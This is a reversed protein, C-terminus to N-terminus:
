INNRYNFINNTQKNNIANASVKLLDVDQNPIVSTSFVFLMVVIFSAVIYSFIKNKNLVYIM